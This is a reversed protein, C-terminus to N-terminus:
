AGGGECETTDIWALCGSEHGLIQTKTGDYGPITTLDEGGIAPPQCGSGSGPSEASVLYWCGNSARAVLCRVDEAVDYSINIAEITLGGSGSGEDECSGAYILDLEATTDKPWAAVTRGIRIADADGGEDYATRIPPAPVGRKANDVHNLVRAVRRWAEVTALVGRDSGDARKTM